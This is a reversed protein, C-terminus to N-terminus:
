ANERHVLGDKRIYQILACIQTIAKELATAAVGPRKEKERRSGRAPVM